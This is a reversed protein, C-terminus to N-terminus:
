SIKTFYSRRKETVKDLYSGVMSNMLSSIKQNSYENDLAKVIDSVTYRTETDMLAVITAKLNENAVQAKTPKTSKRTNRKGYSDISAQVKDLVETNEYGAEIAFERIMTLAQAYTIKTNEM